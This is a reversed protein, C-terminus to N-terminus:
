RNLIIGVTVKKAVIFNIVILDFKKANASRLEAIDEEGFGLLNKLIENTHEGLEPSARQVKVPSKSLKVPSNVVRLMGAHPHQVPIIMERAITHPDSIVQEVTNVPRCPIDNREMEAVWNSTTRTRTIESLITEM